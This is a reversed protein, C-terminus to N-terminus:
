AITYTGDDYVTVTAKLSTPCTVDPTGISITKCVAEAWANDDSFSKAAAIVKTSAVSYDAYVAIVVSSTWIGDTWAQWVDFHRGAGGSSKGCLKTASGDISYIESYACSAGHKGRGHFDWAIRYASSGTDNFTGIVLKRVVCASSYWEAPLCIVDIGNTISKPIFVM